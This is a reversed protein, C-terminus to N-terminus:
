DFSDERKYIEFFVGGRGDLIRRELKFGFEKLPIGHTGAGFLVHGRSSCLRALTETLSYFTKEEIIEVGVLVFVYNLNPFHKELGQLAVLMDERLYTSWLSYDNCLETLQLSRSGPYEGFPKVRPYNIDIGVYEKSRSKCALQRIYTSQKPNGCGLDVIVKDNFLLRLYEKDEPNLSSYIEVMKQAFPLDSTYFPSNAGIPDRESLLQEWEFKEM